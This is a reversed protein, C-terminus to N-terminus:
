FKEEHSDKVEKHYTFLNSAVEYLLEMSAGEFLMFLEKKTMQQYECLFYDYKRLFDKMNETFLDYVISIHCVKAYERFADDVDKRFSDYKMKPNDIAYHKDIVMRIDKGYVPEGEDYMIFGMKYSVDFLPYFSYDFMFIVEFM